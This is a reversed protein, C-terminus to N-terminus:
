PKLLLKDTSVRGFGMLLHVKGQAGNAPNIGRHKVDVRALWTAVEVRCICATLEATPFNGNSYRM